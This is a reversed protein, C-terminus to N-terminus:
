QTRRSPSDLQELYRHIAAAGNADAISVGLPPMRVYANNSELRRVIEDARAALSERTRAASRQPAAASQAFYLGTAELASENHCHGCNGHLYGLAAREEATRAAITDGLQVASYGLIPVPAGEHCALCDERSPIGLRPIGGAPALVAETGEANWV